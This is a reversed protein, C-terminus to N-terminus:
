KYTASVVREQGMVSFRVTCTGRCEAWGSESWSRVNLVTHNADQAVVQEVEIGSKGITGMCNMMGAEVPPPTEPSMVGSKHLIVVKSHVACRIPDTSAVEASLILAAEPLLRDLAQRVQERLTGQPHQRLFDEYAEITGVAQAEGYHLEEIGVRAATALAGAPYAKLFEEYAAVSRAAKARDFLLQEKLGKAQDALPGSPHRALFGDLAEVTGAAQAKRLEREPSSCALLAGTFVVVALLSMRTSPRAM